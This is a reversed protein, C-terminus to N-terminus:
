QAVGFSPSDTIPPLATTPNLINEQKSPITTNLTKVLRIPKEFLITRNKTTSLNQPIYEPKYGPASIKLTLVEIDPFIKGDFIGNSGSSISWVSPIATITIQEKVDEISGRIYIPEVPSPKSFFIAVGSFILGIIFFAIGPAQTNMKFNQKWEISLATSSDTSSLVMAGKYILLIGGIVMCFGALASFMIAIEFVNM